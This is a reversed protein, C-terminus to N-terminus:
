NGKPKWVLVGDEGPNLNGGAVTKTQPKTARGGNALLKTYPTMVTKKYAPSRQYALWAQQATRGQPDKGYVSDYKSRWRDSFANFAVKDLAARGARNILAENAGREKEPGPIMSQALEQEKVADMEKSSPGTGAPSSLAVIPKTMAQRLGLFAQYNPIADGGQWSTPFEQVGQNVRAAFRGTPIRTNYGQAMALDRLTNRLQPTSAFQAERTRAENTGVGSKGESVTLNGGPILDDFAGM